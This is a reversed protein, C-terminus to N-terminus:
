AWGRQFLHKARHRKREPVVEDYNANLFAGFVRLKTFYPAKRGWLANTDPDCEWRGNSIEAVDDNPNTWEGACKACDRYGCEPEALWAKASPSSLSQEIFARPSWERRRGRRRM